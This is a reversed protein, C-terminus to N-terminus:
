GHDVAQGARLIDLRLAAVQNARELAVIACLPCAMHRSAGHIHHVTIECVNCADVLGCYVCARREDALSRREFSVERASPLLNTAHAQTAAHKTITESPM